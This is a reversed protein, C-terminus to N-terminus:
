EITSHEFFFGWISLSIIDLAKVLVSIGEWIQRVKLIVIQSFFEPTVLVIDHAPIIGLWEVSNLM